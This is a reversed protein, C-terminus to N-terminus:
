DHYHENLYKMVIEISSLSIRKNYKSVQQNLYNGIHQIVSNNTHSEKVYRGDIVKGEEDVYTQSYNAVLWEVSKIYDARDSKPLQSATDDIWRLSYFISKPDSQNSILLDQETLRAKTKPVSKFYRSISITKPSVNERSYDSDFLSPCPVGKRSSKSRSPVKKLIFHDYITQYEASNVNLHAKLISLFAEADNVHAELELALDISEKISIFEQKLKKDSLFITNIRERFEVFSAYETTDKKLEKNLKKYIKSDKGILYNLIELFAQPSFKLNELDLAAEVKQMERKTPHAEKAVELVDTRFTYNRSPITLDKEGIVIDDAIDMINICTNQVMYRYHTKIFEQNKDSLLDKTFTKPMDAYGFVMGALAFGKHLNGIEAKVLYDEIKQYDDPDGKQCFAAYARLNDDDVSNLDFETYSKLNKNLANLYERIKAFDDESVESKYQKCIDLSFQYRDEIFDHGNYLEKLAERYVFGLFGDEPIVTLAKQNLVPLDASNPYRKGQFITIHALIDNIYNDKADQESITDAIPAYFPKVQYSKPIQMQRKWDSFWGRTKIYRLLDGVLGFNEADKMIAESIKEDERSLKRFADNLEQYLANLQVSQNITKYTSTISSSLANSIQNTVSYLHVFEPTHDKMLGILYALYFGKLKNIRRDDAIYSSYDKGSDSLLSYDYTKLEMQSNIPWFSRYYLNTMKTTLSRQQSSYVIRYDVDNFFFFRCNYPTLYITRDCYYVGNIGAEYFLEEDYCKTQIEIYVPFNDEDSSPISFQPINEYLAIRDNLRNPEVRVFRRQGFNRREYFAAPSISESSMINNFNQSSTPIYLKSPIM